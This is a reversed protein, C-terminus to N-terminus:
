DNVRKVKNPIEAISFILVKMQKSNSRKDLTHKPLYMSGKLIYYISMVTVTAM